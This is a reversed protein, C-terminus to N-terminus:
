VGDLQARRLEERVTMLIKGQRNEGQWEHRRLLNSSLTAGCGWLRNPTAEVLECNGTGLLMEKLHPNQTFKKKLCSYMLDFQRSEWLDSTGLDDGMRKIEVQNRSLYIRTAALPKNMTKAKLFQFIQESSVFKHQGMTISVPFLNSFPAFESQYAITDKDVRIQKVISPHLPPPLEDLNSSDYREKNIHLAYKGTRCDIGEVQAQKAILRIMNRTKKSAQGLDENVWVQKYDPTKRLNMRSAYVLDRDLQKQFVVVIPRNRNKNYNGQRYCADFEMGKNINLQDFLGWISKEVNEKGGGAEPVGEFILNKKKALTDVRDIKEELRDMQFTSRREETGLDDLQRRLTQNEGKLTDIEKQSFELSLRLQRVTDVLGTSTNGLGALIKDISEFRVAAEKLDNLVLQEDNGDTDEDSDGVESGEEDGSGAQSEKEELKVDDANITAAGTDPTKTKALANGEKAVTAQGASVADQIGSADSVSDNSLGATDRVPSDPRSTVGEIQLGASHATDQLTRGNSDHVRSNTLNERCETNWKDAENVHHGREELMGLKFRLPAYRNVTLLAELEANEIAKNRSHCSPNEFDKSMIPSM